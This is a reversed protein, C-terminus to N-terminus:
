RSWGGTSALCISSPSISSPKRCSVTMPRSRSCCSISERRAPWCTTSSISSAGACRCLRHDIGDPAPMYAFGLDISIGRRKEEALRDPDVGTLARVLASKGHDVHGATGVIMVRAHAVRSQRHLRGRGRSLASRAAAGPTRHARHRPGALRAAAGGAHRAGDGRIALAFSAITEVPLAGSGIQSKCAVVDIRFM